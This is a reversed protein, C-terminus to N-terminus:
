LRTQGNFWSASYNVQSQGRWQPWSQGPWVTSLSAATALSESDTIRNGTIRNSTIQCHNSNGTIGLWHNQQWHELSAPSGWARAWAVPRQSEDGSGLGTEPKPTLNGLSLCRTLSVSRLLSVPRCSCSLRNSQEMLESEFDLKSM